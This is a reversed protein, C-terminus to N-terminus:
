RVVILEGFSGSEVIVSIPTIEKIRIVNEAPLDQLSITDGETVIFIGYGDIELLVTPAQGPNGQGIGKLRLTPLAAPRIESPVFRRRSQDRLQPNERLVDSPSFPDQRERERRPIGGDFAPDTAPGEPSTDIQEPQPTAAGAPTQAQASVPSTALAIATLAVPLAVPLAMPRIIAGDSSM